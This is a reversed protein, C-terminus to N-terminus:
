SNEKSLKSYIYADIGMNIPVFLLIPIIALFPSFYSFVLVAVTVILSFLFKSLFINWKKGYTAKNSENLADIPTMGKDLLYFRGYGYTVSM